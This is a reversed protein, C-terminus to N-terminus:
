FHEPGGFRKRGVYTDKLLSNVTNLINAMNSKRLRLIKSLM